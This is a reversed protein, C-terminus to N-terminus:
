YMKITFDITFYQSKAPKNVTLDNQECSPIEDITMQCTELIM